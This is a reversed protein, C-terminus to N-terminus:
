LVSIIAFVSYLHSFYAFNDTTRCFTTEKTSFRNFGYEHILKYHFHGSNRRGLLCTGVKQRINQRVISCSLIGFTFLFSLGLVVGVTRAM